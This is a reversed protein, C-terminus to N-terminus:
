LHDIQAVHFFHYTQLKPWPSATFDTDKTFNNKQCYQSFKPPFELTTSTGNKQGRTKFLKKKIVLKHSTYPNHKQM